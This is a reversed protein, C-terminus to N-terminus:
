VGIARGLAALSPENQAAASPALALATAGALLGRRTLRIPPQRMMHGLYCIPFTHPCHPTTSTLRGNHGAIWSYGTMPMSCAGFFCPLSDALPSRRSVALSSRL